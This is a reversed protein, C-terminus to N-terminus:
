QKRSKDLFHTVDIFVSDYNVGLRKLAIEGSRNLANM